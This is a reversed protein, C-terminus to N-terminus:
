EGRSPGIDAARLLDMEKYADGLRDLHRRMQTMAAISDRGEIATLIDRHEVQSTAWFREPARDRVFRGALVRFVPACVLELMPNGAARVVLLHFEQNSEYTSPPEPADVASHMFLLQEPSRLHAATGAAHVETLQRVDMLQDVTVTDTAAMLGVSHEVHASLRAIDPASVFTGGTTGRTTHVLSESALSRMAERVTSRSFGFKVMLDAERPLRQGPLLAGSLIQQRIRAAVAEYAPMKAGPM